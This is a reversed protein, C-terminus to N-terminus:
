LLGTFRLFPTKAISIDVRRGNAGLLFFGDSVM